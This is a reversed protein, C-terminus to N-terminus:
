KNGNLLTFKTIVAKLLDRISGGLDKAAVMIRNFDSQSIKDDANAEDVVDILIRLKRVIEKWFLSTAIVSVIITGLNSLVLTGWFGLHIEALM